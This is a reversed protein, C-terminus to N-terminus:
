CVVVGGLIELPFVALPLCCQRYLRYGPFQLIVDGNPSLVIKSFFREQYTEAIINRGTNQHWM